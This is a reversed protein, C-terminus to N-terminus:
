GNKFGRKFGWLNREGGGGGSAKPQTTLGISSGMLRSKDRALLIAYNLYLVGASLLALCCLGLMLSSYRMGFLGLRVRSGAESTVRSEVFGQKTVIGKYNREYGSCEDEMGMQSRGTKSQCFNQWLTMNGRAEKRVDDKYRSRDSFYEATYVVMLFCMLGFVVLCILSVLDFKDKLNKIAFM